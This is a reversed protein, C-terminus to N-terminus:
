ERLYSLFKVGLPSIQHGMGCALYDIDIPGLIATGKAIDPNRHRCVFGYIVALETIAPLFVARRWDETVETGRVAALLDDFKVWAERQTELYKLAGIQLETLEGVAKIFAMQEDFSADGAAWCSALLRGFEKRRRERHEREARICVEDWLRVGEETVQSPDFNPTTSKLKLSLERAMEEIRSLRRDTRFNGFETLAASFAGGAVPVLNVAV